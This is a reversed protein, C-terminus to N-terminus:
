AALIGRLSGPSTATMAWPSNGPRNAGGGPGARDPNLNRAANRDRDMVLGCAPCRYVRESREIRPKAITGCTSCRQATDRAPLAVVVKGAKTAQWTLIARFKAWGADAM